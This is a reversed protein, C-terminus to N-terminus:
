KEVLAKVEEAIKAEEGGEYGAHVHQIVGEKDIIFATPMKAPKYKTKADVAGDKDWTIAFKVGTEKVLEKIKDVGTDADDVAVGIIVLKGGFQDLMEQYKPFSKKCPDCFTGWFDVIVVKGKAEALTKPGDGTVHSAALEPAPKGSLGGQDAATAPDGGGSGGCGALPLSLALGVLALSLTRM